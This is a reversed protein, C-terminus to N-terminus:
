GASAVAGAVPASAVAHVAIEGFSEDQEWWAEGRKYLELLAFVTVAVTMRDADRVAEDFSFRGRRLLGRLHALREAVTVRQLSIHRLNITPPMRLLRGIAEGLAQPQESGAAPAPMAKRLHAPPPANRFRVGAERAFLEQLYRSASRFRRALLMRELLEEAAEGPEVDLLEQEDEALMLRSKLELLAAILVIFETATELDLEGRGELHDLYALVVDALELELLDIEERLVLALLLDFPGSFVDLDLDLAPLTM